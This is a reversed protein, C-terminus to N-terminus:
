REHFMGKSSRLTAKLNVHYNEIAENTDQGAYPLNYNGVVWMAIKPLWELRVYMQFAEAVLLNNAVQEVKFKAQADMEQYDLCEINYM